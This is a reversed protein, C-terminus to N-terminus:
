ERGYELRLSGRKHMRQFRAKGSKLSPPNLRLTLGNLM